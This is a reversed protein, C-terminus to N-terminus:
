VQSIRLITRRNTMCTWNKIHVTICLLHDLLLEKSSQSSLMTHQVVIRTAAIVRLAKWYGLSGLARLKDSRFLNNNWGSESSTRLSPIYLPPEGCVRVMSVSYSHHIRLKGGCPKTICINSPLSRPCGTALIINLPPRGCERPSYQYSDSTLVVM